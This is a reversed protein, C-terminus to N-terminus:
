GTLIRRRIENRSFDTWYIKGDQLNLALYYPQDTDGIIAARSKGELDGRWIQSGNTWYLADGAEDVQVDFFSGSLPAEGIPLTEVGTGDLNARQLVGGNLNEAVWYIKGASPAIAM